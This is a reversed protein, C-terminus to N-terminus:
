EKAHQDHQSVQEAQKKIALSETDPHVLSFRTLSSPSQNTTSHPIARYGLLFNAIQHSLHRGDNESAKM